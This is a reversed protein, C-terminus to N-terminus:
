SKQIKYYYFGCATIILGTVFMSIHMPPYFTRILIIQIILWGTLLIGQLLLLLYVKRYGSLLLALTTLSLIGNICLLIIGPVLFSSFPSYQLLKIDLGIRSGTPDAILGIGGYIAGTGNLLLFLVTIAKIFLNM